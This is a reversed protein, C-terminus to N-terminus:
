SESARIAERKTILRLVSGLAEDSHVLVGTYWAPFLVTYWPPITTYGHHTPLTYRPPTYGAYGLHHIYGAYGLHHVEPYGLHHVEWSVRPTYARGAVRPTYARGAVRPTYRLTYM